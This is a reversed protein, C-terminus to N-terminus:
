PRYAFEIVVAVILVWAGIGLLWSSGVIAGAVILVPACAALALVTRRVPRDPRLTSAM